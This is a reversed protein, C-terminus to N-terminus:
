RRVFKIDGGSYTDYKIAIEVAEIASGGMALAGLAIRRGSGFAAFDTYLRDWKGKELNLFHERYILIGTGNEDNKIDEPMPEPLGNRVWDSFSQLFFLSGTAAFLVEGIKGVKTISGCYLGDESVKTDAALIGDRYAITTM